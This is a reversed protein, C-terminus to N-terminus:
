SEGGFKRWTDGDWYFVNGTDLEVLMTNRDEPSATLTPKTDVSLGLYNGRNGNLTVM